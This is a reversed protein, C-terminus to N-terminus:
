VLPKPDELDLRLSAPGAGNEVVLRVREDARRVIGEDIVGLAVVFDNVGGLAVAPLVKIENIHGPSLDLVLDSLTLPHHAPHRPHILDVTLDPKPAAAPVGVLIRVQDM